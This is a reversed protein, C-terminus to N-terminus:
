ATKEARRDACRGGSAIRTDRFCGLMFNFFFVNSDYQDLVVFYLQPFLYICLLFKVCRNNFNIFTFFFIRVEAAGAPISLDDLHM